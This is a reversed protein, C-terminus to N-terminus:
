LNVALATARSNPRSLSSPITSVPEKLLGLERAVASATLKHDGTIMVTKIGAVACTEIAAKAEKRPPDMMGVLGVFVMDHEIAGSEADAEGMLANDNLLRYAFGIVRLASDAM